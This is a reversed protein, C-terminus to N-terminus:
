DEASIIPGITVGNPADGQCSERFNKYSGGCRHCREYQEITSGEISGYYDERQEPTLKDYYANFNALEAEAEARSYAMHVWGCNLCTVEKLDVETHLAICM